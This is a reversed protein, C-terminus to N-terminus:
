SPTLPTAHFVRVGVCTSVDFRRFPSAPPTGPTSIGDASITAGLNHMMPLVLSPLLTVRPTFWFTRPVPTPLTKRDPSGLLDLHLFLAVSHEVMMSGIDDPVSRCDYLKLMRGDRDLVDLRPLM